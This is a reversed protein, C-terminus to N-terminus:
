KLRYRYVTRTQVERSASASVLADQWASWSKWRYFHYTFVKDRYQYVTVDIYNTTNIYWRSSGMNSPIASDGSIKYGDEFVSLRSPVVDNRFFNEGYDGGFSIAHTRYTANPTASWRWGYVGDIKYRYYNTAMRYSSVEKDIKTNVERTASATVVTRSWASWASWVYTEDYKIWGSLTSNSSTTTEKDRYQYQTKSEIDHTTASVGSPLSTVWDSWPCNGTSVVANVTTGKNVTTGENPNLSLILGSAVTNSCKDTKSVILGANTANTQFTAFSSGVGAPIKVTEVSKGKSVVVAIKSGKSVKTGVKPNVSIISGKAISDSYLESSTIVFGLKEAEAKYTSLTKGSFAPVTILESKAYVSLEILTGANVSSNAAASQKFVAGATQSDNIVYVIKVELGLDSLIQKAEAESKGVVNPVTIKESHIVTELEISTGKDVKTSSTVSQSLVEGLPKADNITQRITVILGLGELQTKAQGVDMGKVEPITVKEIAKAVTLQVSSGKTVKNLASVSQELVTGAPQSADEKEIVSVKLGLGELQSVAEQQSTYVVNPIEVEQNGQSFLGFGQTIFLTGVLLLVGLVSVWALGKSKRKEFPKKPINVDNHNVSNGVNKQEIVTPKVVAPEVSIETNLDNKKESKATPEEKTKSSGQFIGRTLEHNSEALESTKSTNQSRSKQDFIGETLHTYTKEISVLVKDMEPKLTIQQLDRLMESPNSYRDKPNFACAKLIIGAIEDSANVPVPLQDGRIRRGLSEERDNFSLLEKDQPAFPLRNNNFLKYLVLGLSYIDVSANYQEGRYVEPAMYMYTGKKSLSANTKELQRAIGFDGLKFDGFSSVFINEPKIDRHLINRVSCYELARCLDTGLKLADSSKFPSMQVRKTFPTLLEMRIFIEWQILEPHEIIEYDEVVVVNPASKISELMEIETQWEQVIEMFYEKIANDSAGSSREVNIQSENQPIKIVKIASFNTKGFLQRSAKYVRGFSGEGLIEIFEWAGWQGYTQEAM